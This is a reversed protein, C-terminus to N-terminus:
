VMTAKQRGQGGRPIGSLTLRRRRLRGGNNGTEAKTRRRRLPPRRASETTSPRTSTTQYPLSPSCEYPHLSSLGHHMFPGVSSHDRLHGVFYAITIKFNSLMVLSVLPLTLQDIEKAMHFSEPRLVCGCDVCPLSPCAHFRGGILAFQTLCQNSITIPNGSVAEPPLPLSSEHYVHSSTPTSEVGFLDSLAATASISRRSRDVTTIPDHLYFSSGSSSALTSM